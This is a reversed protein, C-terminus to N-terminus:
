ATDMTSLFHEAVVRIQGKALNQSDIEIGILMKIQRLSHEAFESKVFHNATETLQETYIKEFKRFHLYDEDNMFVTIKNPPLVGNKFVKTNEAIAKEIAKEVFIPQLPYSEPFLRRLIGEMAGDVFNLFKSSTTSM